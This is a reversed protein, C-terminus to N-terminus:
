QATLASWITCPFICWYLQAMGTLHTTPDYGCPRGRNLPWPQGYQVSLIYWYLHTTGTFHTTLDHGCPRGRHLPWPRGSPVSLIYWYLQTMGTLHTTPDHGCPRGRYLPWPRSSPVHFFIGIYIFPVQSTLRRIMVVPDAGISRDPGVLHYLVLSGPGKEAQLQVRSPLMSLNIMLLHYPQSIMQSVSQNM